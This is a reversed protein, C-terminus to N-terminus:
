VIYKQATSQKEKGKGEMGIEERARKGKTTIGGSQFKKNRWQLFLDQSNDSNEMPQRSHKRSHSLPAAEVRVPLVCAGGCGGDRHTM